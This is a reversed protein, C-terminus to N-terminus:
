LLMSMAVIYSLSALSAVSLGLNPLSVHGPCLRDRYVLRVLTQPDLGELIPSPLSKYFFDLIFSKKRGFLFFSTIRECLFVPIKRLENIYLEQKFVTKSFQKFFTPLTKLYNLESRTLM